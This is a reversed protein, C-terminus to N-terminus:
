NSLRDHREGKPYFRDKWTKILDQNYLAAWNNCIVSYQGMEVELTVLPIDDMINAQLVADYPSSLDINRWEGTYLNFVNTM